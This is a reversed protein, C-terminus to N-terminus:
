NYNKGYWLKHGDNKFRPMIHFHAHPVLQGAVRGNNLGLNFANSDVAKIIAPTLKKITIIIESLIDDPIDQMLEYHKKPMILTHGHNVPNIDLFAIVKDNEYVKACPIKGKVIKCFACDKQEKNEALM